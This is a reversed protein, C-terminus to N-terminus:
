WGPVRLIHIRGSLSFDFIKAEGGIAEYLLMFEEKLHEMFQYHCDLNIEILDKISSIKKM